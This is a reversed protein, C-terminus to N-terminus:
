WPVTAVLVAYRAVRLGLGLGVVATWRFRLLGAAVLLPDGVVPLWSALLSWTGFRDARELARRGRPSASLRARARDAFLRGLGYSSLAGLCNGASAWALVALPPYGAALAALVAVESSLPLVTAALFAALGLGPLGADLAWAM